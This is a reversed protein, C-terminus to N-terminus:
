LAEGVARELRCLAASLDRRALTYEFQMQRAVRQADLVELLSTAGQQFSRQAMQLADQAQKLLGKEFVEIQEAATEADQFHQYVAKLLDNRILYWEGEQRRKAGLAAAVEGQRQYWVPTPISLGAWAGERGAERTYGGYVSVDPMRSQREKTVLWDAQEVQKELRRLTPHQERARTVLIDVNLDRRFTRFEGQVSFAKGLAGATLTDLSVRGLRVANRARRVDQQAKLVEVDAKVAELRVADGAKVRIKAVRAVDEIAILNQQAIQVTQQAELLDYFELKVQSTLNLKVEEMGASAGSLAAEAAHQRATRKGTWELPQSVNVFVETLRAGNTPDRVAGSGSQGNITPNLFAKATTDQGRSQEVEGEVRTLAPSRELALLVIQDVTYVADGTEGQVFSSASLFLVLVFGLMRLTQLFPSIM